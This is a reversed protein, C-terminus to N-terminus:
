RPATIQPNRATKGSIQRGAEAATRQASGHGPHQSFQEQRPESSLRNPAKPYQSMKSM